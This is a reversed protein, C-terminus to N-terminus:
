RSRGARRRRALTVGAGSASEPLVSMEDFNAEYEGPAGPEITAVVGLFLVASRTGKPIPIDFPGFSSWLDAPLGTVNRTFLGTSTTRICGPDAFFALDVFPVHDVSPAPVRLQACLRLSGPRPLELCQTARVSNPNEGLKKRLRLSGSAPDGSADDATWAITSSDFIELSWTALLPDDFGGDVVAGLDGAFGDAHSRLARDLHGDVVGGRHVCLPTARGQRASM